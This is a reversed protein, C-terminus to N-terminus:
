DDDGMVPVFDAADHPIVDANHPGVFSQLAGLLADGVQLFFDLFVIPVEDDGGVEEFQAVNRGDGFEDDGAGQAAGFAAAEM